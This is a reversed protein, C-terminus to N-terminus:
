NGSDSAAAYTALFLAGAWRVVVLVGPAQEVLTGIGAVGAAILVADSLACVAVVPGVQQRALGQRLVFANQSGIAVILGLGAFLGALATSTM